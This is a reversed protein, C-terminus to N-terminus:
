KRSDRAAKVYDHSSQIHTYQATLLQKIPLPLEKELAKKYAKKAEDEGAEATELLTHDGGGLHAKLDGWTRHIAGSVTGKEKVDHVGERHLVEELEGRFQSRKLSEAAFYKKLTEDKLHEGIKQFGEQGDILSQIVDRLTEEVQEHTLKHTEKIEASM